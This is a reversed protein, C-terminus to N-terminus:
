RRRWATSVGTATRGATSSPSSSTWGARRSVPNSAPGPFRLDRQGVARGPLGRGPRRPYHDAGPRRPHRGSRRYGGGRPARGDSRFVPTQVTVMTRGSGADVGPSTVYLAGRELAEAWWWRERTDYGQREVRGGPQFYEGTSATAFFASVITPDTAVLARFYAHVDEYTRDGELPRRHEDYGEFWRRLPPNALMAEVVRGREAFFRSIEAARLTVLDLAAREVRARTLASIQRVAVTGAVALFVATAGVIAMPLRRGVRRQAM